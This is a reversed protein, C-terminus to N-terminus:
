RLGAVEVEIQYLPLAGARVREQVEALTMSTGLCDYSHTAGRVVENGYREVVFAATAEIRERAIPHTMVFPPPAGPQQTQTELMDELFDVLAYPNYGAEHMLHVAVQDASREMRPLHPARLAFNEVTRVLEQSVGEGRVLADLLRQGFQEELLELDHGAEIHGLEHAIAGAVEACSKAELLLGTTVFVAGGPLSIAEVNDPDVIVGLAAQPVMGAALEAAWQAVPDDPAVVPVERLVTSQELGAELASAPDGELAHRGCGAAVGALVAVCLACFVWSKM